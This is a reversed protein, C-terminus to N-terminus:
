RLSSWSKLSALRSLTREGAGRMRGVSEAPGHSAPLCIALPYHREGKLVDGVPKGGIAEVLDLVARAPVGYRAVQDQRIRVQLIPQPTVQEIAVDEAGQIKKLEEEIKQAKEMLVHFDDGFIKVAIDARIGSIMENMRQEIPQTFSLKQGPLAKVADQMQEVLEAQTKAKIWASRPKLSIFMDTMEVGMPDTAVEASGSRSWIHDIEHPFDALLTKEMVTNARNAEGLSTGPLHSVGVVLAGESLKPIFESGLGHLMMLSGGFVALAGALVHYPFQM